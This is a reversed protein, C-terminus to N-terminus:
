INHFMGLGEMQEVIMLAQYPPYGMGALYGAMAVEHLTHPINVGAQIEMLGHHAIPHIIAMINPMGYMGGGPMDCCMGGYMGGYMGDYMGGYMEYPM